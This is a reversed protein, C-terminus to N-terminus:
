HRVFKKSEFINGSKVSILYTGSSLNGINIEYLGNGAAVLKKESFLLRGSIESVQILCQQATSSNINLRLKNNAPNAFVSFSSALKSFYVIRIPSFLLKGDVDVEKIRYYLTGTLFPKDVFQYNRLSNSTGAANVRGIDAFEIGNISREIVFHSSNQEQQTSWDLTVNEHQLTANFANLVIPLTNDPMVYQWIDTLPGIPNAAYGSGGFFWLKGTNDIWPESRYRGGPAIPATSSSELGYESLRNALGDGDM